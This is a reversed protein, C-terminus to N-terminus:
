PYLEGGNSQHTPTLNGDGLHNMETMVKIKIMVYIKVERNDYKMGDDVHSTWEHGVYHPTNSNCGGVNYKTNELLHPRLPFHM